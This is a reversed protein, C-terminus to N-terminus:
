KKDTLTQWWDPKQSKRFAEKESRGRMSIPMTSPRALDGEASPMNKDEEGMMGMLRLYEEIAENNMDPHVSGREGEFPNPPRYKPGEHGGMGAQQKYRDRALPPMEMADVSDEAMLPDDMEAMIQPADRGTGQYNEQGFLPHERMSVGGYSREEDHPNKFYKLIKWAKSFPTAM